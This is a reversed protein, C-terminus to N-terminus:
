IEFEEEDQNIQIEQKNRINITEVIEMEEESEYGYLAGDYGLDSLIVNSTNYGNIEYNMMNQCYYDKVTDKDALWLCYKIDKGTQNKIENLANQYLERLDYEGMSQISLEEEIENKLQLFDEKLESDKLQHNALYDLIDINGLEYTEYVLVDIVNRVGDGFCDDCRYRISM